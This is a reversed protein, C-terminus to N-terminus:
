LYERLLRARRPHRLRGLAKREIQRIRERTLGLKQGVEELTKPRSGDLGFRLQLVRAERPSLTALAEELCDRLMAQYVVQVPSPTSEDELFMGLESDEDEGVPSELSVPIWAVKLMWQVKDTDIDLEHALEQATPPQGLKQELIHYTRYLRRIRDYMHAPLRITRGLDAVARSISQRIWWTAYTSFRFGRQYEFKDVAKMLGLNGEQILDLFPVGRGMYKKAVSVVLRTNARILHERAIAGERILLELDQREKKPGVPGIEAMRTNAEEAVEIQQSLFVEEEKSLLPVASMEKLYLSISDESSIHDLDYISDAESSEAEREDEANSNGDLVEVGSQKLASMVRKLQDEDIWTCVEAIDEITIFGHLEAQHVLIDLVQGHLVTQSAHVM